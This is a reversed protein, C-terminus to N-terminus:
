SPQPKLEVRYRCSKGGRLISDTVEARVPAGVVAAFMKETFGEAYYCLMGLDQQPDRNKQVLPCVCESKNENMMIIGTTVDCDIIWGWQSRMFNLFEPLKGAFRAM